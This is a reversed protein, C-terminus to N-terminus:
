SDATTPLRWPPVEEEIVAAGSGPRGDDNRADVALPLIRAESPEL